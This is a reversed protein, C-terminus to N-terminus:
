NSGYTSVDSVRRLSIKKLRHHLDLLLRCIREMSAPSLVAAKLLFSELERADSAVVKNNEIVSLVYNIVPQTPSAAQLRLGLTLFERLRAGKPGGPRHSLFSGLESVWDESKAAMIHEITTKSGNIELGYDRYISSIKSLIREAEELTSVGVLWDDQLRDVNAVAPQVGSSGFSDDVRTSIIEALVRSTEPGVPIGITQNRNCARVLVDLRDALSGNYFGRNAKVKEKGYAAWPISHTYISPYFRTIDTKVIWDSSAEIYAKKGRHLEFNIEKIGREYKTSARVEDMSYAQLSLWKHIKPWGDAMESCLLAQPVPHTIHLNRREYGKKPKSITEPEAELLKSYCFAGSRKQKNPTKTRLAKKTFVKDSQWQELISKSHEGFTSTTFAPPLEKPFYGRSLLVNRITDATM